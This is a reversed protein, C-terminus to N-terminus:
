AFASTADRLLEAGVRHQAAGLSTASGAPDSSGIITIDTSQNLSATRSAAGGLIPPQDLASMKDKIGEIRERKKLIELSQMMQLRKVEDAPMLRGGEGNGGSFHMPDNKSRWEAGWGLGWKKALASTEPPLNGNGTGIDNPGPNIDIARGFAHQSRKSSGAINRDSFGQLDKIKYGTAELDDIFGQFQPAYEKAVIATQGSKSRIRAFGAPPAQEAGPVAMGSADIAPTHPSEIGVARKFRQWMSPPKVPNPAVKHLKGSGDVWDGAMGNPGTTGFPEHIIDKETGSSFGSLGYIAAMATALAFNLRGVVGIVRLAWSGAMFLALTELAMKLSDKDDGAILKVLGMFGDAVPKMAGVLSGFDKALGVVANMVAKIGAIIEEKNDKLWGSFQNMWETLIPQLREVVSLFLINVTEMLSRVSTMLKNSSEALKSPDVGFKKLEEEYERQFARIKPWQTVFTNWTKEDGIGVIEAFQRSVYYESKGLKTVIEDIVKVTDRAKGNEETSIGLTRNVFSKAGPNTRLASAVSEIAARAQDSSGGVQSLAYSLSKISTVSAHTRQSAFYLEDFSSAVVVVAGSIAGAAAVLSASVKAAMSALSTLSSHFRAEDGKRVEFGLKVLYDRITEAM